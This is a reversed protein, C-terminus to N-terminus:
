LRQNQYFTRQRNIIQLYDMRNSVEAIYKKYDDSEAAFHAHIAYYRTVSKIAIKLQRKSRWYTLSGLVSVSLVLFLCFMASRLIGFVEANHENYFLFYAIGATPGFVCLVITIRYFSASIRHRSKNVDFHRQLESEISQIFKSENDKVSRYQEFTLPETFDKNFQYQTYSYEM